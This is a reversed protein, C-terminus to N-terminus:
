RFKNHIIILNNYQLIMNEKNLMHYQHKNCFYLITKKENRHNMIIKNKGKTIENCYFCKM